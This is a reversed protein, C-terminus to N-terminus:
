INVVILPDISEAAADALYMEEIVLLQTSM